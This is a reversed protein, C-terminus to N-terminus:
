KGIRNRKAVFGHALEKYNEGHGTETYERVFVERGRANIKYIPCATPTCRCVYKYESKGIKMASEQPVIIGSRTKLEGGIEKHLGTTDYLEDTTLKNKGSVEDMINAIQDETYEPKKAEPKIEMKPEVAIEKAVELMEALKAENWRGDYSIGRRDLEDKLDQKSM